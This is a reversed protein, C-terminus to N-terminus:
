TSDDGEDISVPSGSLEALAKKVDAHAYGRSRLKSYCRTLIDRQSPADGGRREARRGESAYVRMAIKSLGKLIDERGSELEKRILPKEVGKARLGERLSAEGEPHLRLRSRMWQEAFRENSLLGEDELRSLVTRVNEASFDKKVLKRELEARAHERRALAALAAKEIGYLASAAELAALREEWEPGELEAKSAYAADLFAPLGQDALYALRFSFLSGSDLGLKVVERAGKELAVVRM